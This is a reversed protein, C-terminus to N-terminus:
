NLTKFHKKHLKALITYKRSKVKAFAPSNFIMSIEGFHKNVGIENILKERRSTLRRKLIECSGHSM